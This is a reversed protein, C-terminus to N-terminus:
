GVDVAAVVAVLEGAFFAIGFGAEVVEAGAEVGGV